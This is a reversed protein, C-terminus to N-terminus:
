SWFETAGQVAENVRETVEDLDELSLGIAQLAVESPIEEVAEGIIGHGGRLAICNAVHTMLAIIPRGQAEEPRHHYGIADILDQPFNWRGGIKAGVEAHDCDVVKREAEVLPIGEERMVAEIKPFEASLARRMVVKGVDHLLGATFATDLVAPRVRRSLIQAAMATAVSHKWLGGAEFGYGEGEGRFMDHMVATLVLNRLTHFGLYMVAQRLSSITRPLGYFPSNCLKLLNATLGQDSSVVATLDDASCDPDRTMAMVRAVVAPLVPIKEIEEIVSQLTRDTM